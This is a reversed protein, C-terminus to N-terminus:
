YDDTFLEHSDATVCFYVFIYSKESTIQFETMYKINSKKLLKFSSQITANATVKFTLGLSVGVSKGTKRFM